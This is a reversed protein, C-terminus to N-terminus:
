NEVHLKRITKALRYDKLIDFLPGIIGSASVSALGWTLLWLGSCETANEGGLLRFNFLIMQTTMQASFNFFSIYPPCIDRSLYRVYTKYIDGSIVIDELCRMIVNIRVKM